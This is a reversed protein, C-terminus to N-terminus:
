KSEQNNPKTTPKLICGQGLNNWGRVRVAEVCDEHFGKHALRKEDSFFGSGTVVEFWLGDYSRRILLRKDETWHVHPSTKYSWPERKVVPTATLLGDRPDVYLGQYSSRGSSVLPRPGSQYACEKLYPVIKGKANPQMVVDREVFDFLHQYIHAGVASKPSCNQRIESFVADWKRGRQKWLFRALPALNEGFNRRETKKDFVKRSGAQKPIGHDMVNGDEDLRIKIRRLPKHTSSNSSNSRYCECLLKRFDDRM